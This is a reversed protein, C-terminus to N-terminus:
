NSPVIPKGSSKRVGISDTDIPKFGLQRAPSDRKLRFDLQGADVFQPDTIISHTDHGRKQWESFSAGSFDPVAGPRADFYDNGDM